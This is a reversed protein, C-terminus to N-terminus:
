APYFIQLSGLAHAPAPRHACPPPLSPLPADDVWRAVALRADESTGSASAMENRYLQLTRIAEGYKAADEQTPRMTPRPAPLSGRPSRDAAERGALARVKNRKKMYAGIPGAVDHSRTAKLPVQLMVSLSHVRRAGAPTSRSEERPPVAWELSEWDTCVM